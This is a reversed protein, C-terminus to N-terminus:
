RWCPCCRRRPPPAPSWAFAPRPCSSAGRRPYLLPIGTRTCADAALHSAYGLLLALSPPWGWWFSLPLSWCGSSRWDWRPTCCVGTASPRHLLLPLALFPTLAGARRCISSRAVAAADLDPLLAGSPPPRQWCDSTARPSERRQHGAARPELLWLSNVGVLAHTRWTM